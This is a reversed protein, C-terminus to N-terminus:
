IWSRKILYKLNLAYVFNDLKEILTALFLTSVNTGFSINNKLNM